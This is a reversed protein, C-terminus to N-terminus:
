TKKCFFLPLYPPMNNHPVGDGRKETNLKGHWDPKYPPGDDVDIRNKSGNNNVTHGWDFTSVPHAHTPMEEIKLKHKETGGPTRFVRRTLEGNGSPLNGNKFTAGIIMRSQGDSFESWGMKPCGDSLDFAMVAGSPVSPGFITGVWGWLGQATALVAVAVISGAAGIVINRWM